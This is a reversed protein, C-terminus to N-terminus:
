LLAQKTTILEKLKQKDPFSKIEGEIKLLLSARYEQNHNKKREASQIYWTVAKQGTFNRSFFWSISKYCTGKYVVLQEERAAKLIREKGKIKSM